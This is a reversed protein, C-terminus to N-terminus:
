APRSTGSGNYDEDFRYVLCRDYGTLEHIMGVAVDALGQVDTQKSFQEQVRSVVHIADMSRLRGRFVDTAEASLYFPESKSKFSSATHSPDSVFTSPKLPPFLGPTERIDPIEDLEFECVLLSHPRGLFHIACWMAIPDGLPDRLYIRFVRPEESKSTQLFRSRVVQAEGHFILRQNPPFAYLFNEM